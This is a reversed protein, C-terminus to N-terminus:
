SIRIFEVDLKSYDVKYYEGDFILASEFETGILEQAMVGQYTGELGVQEIYEFTYINIGSESVGILQINQKLRIDSPIPPDGTGGTLNNNSNQQNIERTVKKGNLLLTVQQKGGGGYAVSMLEILSNLQDQMITDKTPLGKADTIAKTQLTIAATQKASDVKAQDIFGQTKSNTPGFIKQLQVGMLMGTMGGALASGKTSTGTAGPSAVKAGGGAPAPTSKPAGGGGGAATPPAAAKVAQGTGVIASAKSTAGAATPTSAAGGGGGAPAATVASGPKGFLGLTDVLFEGLFTPVGPFLDGLWGFITSGFTSGLMAGIPGLFAGGVAGGLISGVLSMLSGGVNKYLEPLPGENMAVMASLDKYMSFGSLASGIPGAVKGAVSGLIKLVGGGGTVVKGLFKKPNFKDWFGM